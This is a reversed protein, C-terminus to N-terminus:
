RPVVAHHAVCRACSTVCYIDPASLLCGSDPVGGACTACPTGNSTFANVCLESQSITVGVACVLAGGDATVANDVPAPGPLPKPCGEILVCSVTILFWRTVRSM